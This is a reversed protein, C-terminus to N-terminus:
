FDLFWFSYQTYFFCNEPFMKQKNKVLNPIHYISSFLNPIPFSHIFCTGTLSLDWRSIMCVMTWPIVQLDIWWDIIKKIWKYIFIDTKWNMCWDMVWSGSIKLWCETFGKLSYVRSIGDNPSFFRHCFVKLNLFSIWLICGVTYNM